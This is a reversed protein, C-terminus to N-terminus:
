QRILLTSFLLGLLRTRLQCVIEQQTNIHSTPRLFEYAKWLRQGLIEYNLRLLRGHRKLGGQIFSIAFRLSTLTMGDSGHVVSTTVVIRDILLLFAFSATESKRRM